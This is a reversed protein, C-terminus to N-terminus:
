KGVPILVPPAVAQTAKTEAALDASVDGLRLLLSPLAGIRSIRMAEQRVDGQTTTLRRATPSLVFQDLNFIDLQNDCPLLRAFDIRPVITVFSACSTIQLDQVELSSKTLYLVGLAIRGFALTQRATPTTAHQNSGRWVRVLTHAFLLTINEMRRQWQPSDCRTPEPRVIGHRLRYESAVRSLYREFDCHAAHVADVREQQYFQYQRLANVDSPQRRDTELHEAEIELRRRAVYHAVSDMMPINAFYESVPERSRFVCLAQGAMILPACKPDHRLVTEGPALPRQALVYAQADLVMRIMATTTPPM